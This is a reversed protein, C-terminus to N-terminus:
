QWLSINYHFEINFRYPHIIRKYLSLDGLVPSKTHIDPDRLLESYLSYLEM